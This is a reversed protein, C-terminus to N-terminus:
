QSNSRETQFLAELCRQHECAAAQIKLAQARRAAADSRPIRALKQREADLAEGAKVAANHLEVRIIERSDM